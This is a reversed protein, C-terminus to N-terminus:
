REDRLSSLYEKEEEGLFTRIAKEISERSDEHTVNIVSLRSQAILNSDTYEALADQLDKQLSRWFTYQRKAYNRTKQQIAHVMNKKDGETRATALYDLIDDYGIIKKERIFSEWSTGLLGEVEEVWGADIMHFVRSDIRTYLEKRERTLFFLAFPALPQFTPAYLSPKKGTTYWIDLARRVRYLDHPDISHARDPDIGELHHWLQNEQIDAYADSETIPAGQPPFFLSKLYFGSGGVLIPVKGRQRLSELLPILLSRYEVVTVQRPSDVVDFLHHPIAESRWDPKATGITLSTYLAGMDMNIIEGGLREALSLAYDTKGVGTPGYIIIMSKKDKMVLRIRVLFLAQIKL